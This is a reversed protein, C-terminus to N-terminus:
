SPPPVAIAALLTVTGLVTLIVIDVVRGRVCLLGAARSPLVTRLLAAVCLAIAFIVTGRKFHDSAVVVLGAAAVTLVVVAPWQKIVARAFSGSAMRRHAGQEPVSMM